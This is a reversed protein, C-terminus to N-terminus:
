RYRLDRINAGYPETKIYNLMTSAMTLMDTNVLYNSMELFKDITIDAFVEPNNMEMRIGEKMTGDEYGIITPYFRLYKGNNLPFDVIDFKGKIKLINRSDRGFITNSGIFWPFINNQIIMNLLMVDNPYLLVSDRYNLKSEIIYYFRYERRVSVNDLGKAKNRTIFENHFTRPNGNKDYTTLQVVFKMNFTSDLWMVSDSIKDYETFIIPSIGKNKDPM